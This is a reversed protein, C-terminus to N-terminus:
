KDGKKFLRKIADWLKGVSVKVDKAEAAIEALEENTYKTGGPSDEGGAKEVAGLLEKIQKVTELAAVGITSGAVLGILIPVVVELISKFDM